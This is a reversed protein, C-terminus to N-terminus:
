NGKVSMVPELCDDLCGVGSDTFDGYGGLDYQFGGMSYWTSALIMLGFVLAGLLLL